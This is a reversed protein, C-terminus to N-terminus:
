IALVLVFAYVCVCVCVCVCSECCDVPNTVFDTQSGFDAGLPQTQTGCAVLAERRVRDREM